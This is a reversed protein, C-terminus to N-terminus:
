IKTLVDSEPCYAWDDTFFMTKYDVEGCCSREFQNECYACVEIQEGNALVEAKILDTNAQKLKEASITLNSILKDATTKFDELVSM